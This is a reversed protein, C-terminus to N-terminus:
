LPHTAPKEMGELQRQGIELIKEDPCRELYNYSPHGGGKTYKDNHRTNYCNILTWRPKESKNPDSRHLTNSHFFLVDGPNMEAYVLPLKHFNLLAEVEEVRAGVQEGTTGHHLRGCKHSGKILQMCGNERTAQDVAIAASMMDPFLVKQSLYWYGFDQHWEWAGGVRPEKLMMKHHFHYVEDGLLAECTEVISRCRVFASYIDDPLDNRLRLRSIGGQADRRGPSTEMARDARAIQILLDMYPRSFLGRAIFYGDERFQKIQEDTAKFSGM